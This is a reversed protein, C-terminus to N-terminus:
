TKFQRILVDLDIQYTRIRDHLTSKPLGLDAATRRQNGRNALLRQVIMEREIEKILSSQPTDPVGDRGHGLGEHAGGPEMAAVASACALPRGGFVPRDSGILQDIHEAQIHEGPMYASARCVVNKLERINGPWSHAKLREIANFSFRVRMARAFDYLLDEFDEMRRALAPPRIACVNLRYFLDERFRGRSVELTLDKHTAAIIRVDTEIVRDSGVPRIEHNELARLLKPQLSLPLDGIEDLFLTGGRAVEFAGKRDHTAGTFSGKMHGFLESEILNESLASCNISILPNHSRSSHTHIARAVVEKGTGSPGTVLVPFETMAFAPLRRLDANWAENRSTLSPSESPAEAFVFVAEGFSIRDNIALSAETIRSGNLFTGNRSGQDRIVFGNQRREIRAHRGSVFPDSLVLHNGPDRGITFFQNIEISNRSGDTAILFALNPPPTADTSIRCTEM